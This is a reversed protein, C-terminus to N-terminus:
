RIKRLRAATEVAAELAAQLRGATTAAGSLYRDIGAVIAAVNPKGDVDLQTTHTWYWDPIQAVIQPLRSIEVCIESLQARILDPDNDHSM